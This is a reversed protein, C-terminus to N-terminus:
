LEASYIVQSTSSNNIGVTYFTPSTFGSSTLYGLATNVDSTDFNMATAFISSTQYAYFGTPNIFTVSPAVRMQVQLRDQWYVTTSSRANGYGLQVAVTYGQTGNRQQCYRQCLQLETTYPRYDFSTAQTGVEFQVGTIYFTANNTAVVSTAGTASLVNSSTWTGAAGSYTSGVGLGFIVNVGQLNGTQWSGSTPPTIAITIYQWTNSSNITYSFPYNWSYGYNQLVGGFTGTLSSYVWFSITVAKASATGWGLDAINYGEIRQNITYYDTSGISYASQSQVGLYNPFGAPPTVSNYNQGGNLKGTTSQQIQWRDVSYGNISTGVASGSNRQDIVMAGNIIRNKFNSSNGAGLSYGTSTVLQEASVTGYAM